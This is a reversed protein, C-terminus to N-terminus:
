ELVPTGVRTMICMNTVVYASDTIEVGLRSHPSDLPGVCFPIIYMTRGKMCGRYLESMTQKLEVPDIWNNTPGAEDETEAAIFTRNEVRAVDSPDSRFLYCGPRLEPNLEIAAGREVEMALLREYEEQSGDCLHVRDPTMHAELEAVWQKLKENKIM